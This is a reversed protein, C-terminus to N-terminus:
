VGMPTTPAALAQVRGELYVDPLTRAVRHSSRRRGDASSTGPAASCMQESASVNRAANLGALLGAAAKEYGTTGNIQGALLGSIRKDGADATKQLVVIM